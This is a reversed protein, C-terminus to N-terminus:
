PRTDEGERQSQLIKIAEEYVVIAEVTNKCYYHLFGINSMIQIIDRLDKDGEQSGPWRHFYQYMKLIDSYFGIALIHRGQIEHIGAIRNLIDIVIDPQPARRSLSRQVVIDLINKTNWNKSNQKKQDHTMVLVRFSEVIVLVLCTSINM